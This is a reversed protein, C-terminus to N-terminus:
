GGWGAKLTASPPEGYRARYAATFRGLHSFGCAYAVSGVTCRGTPRKLRKNAEDLRLHNLVNLPPAGRVSRFAQQLRRATVELRAALDSVSLPEDYHQQMIEEAARVLRREAPGAADGRPAPEEESDLLDNLLEAVLVGAAEAARESRYLSGGSKAVSFLASLYSRLAGDRRGGSDEEFALEIVPDVLRSPQPTAGVAAQLRPVLVCDCHFLGTEDPVVTTQRANPSFILTDGPRAVFGGRETRVSLQGQRPMLITLNNKERLGIVHGTSRVQCLRIQGLWATQVQMAPNEAKLFECWEELAFMRSGTTFVTEPGYTETTRFADAVGM